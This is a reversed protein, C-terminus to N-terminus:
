GTARLLAKVALSVEGSRCGFQPTESSDITGQLKTALWEGDLARAKVVKLAIDVNSTSHTGECSVWFFGTYSGNYEKGKQGLVGHMVKESVDRWVVDCAGRRCKPKMHWGASLAEYKSYGSQSTVMGTIGFDGEVRAEALSPTKITVEDTVPDSTENVGIARIEYSYTKGPRVDTDRYSTSTTSAFLAHGNRKIEYNEIKASAPDVGWSLRVTFGDATAAFGVPPLVTKLAAKTEVEAPEGGGSDCGAVMLPVAVVLTCWFSRSRHSGVGVM